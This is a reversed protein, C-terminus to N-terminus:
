TWKQRGGRAGWGEFGRAMQRADRRDTGMPMGMGEGPAGASQCGARRGDVGKIEDVHRSYCSRSLQKQSPPPAQFGPHAPLPLQHAAGQRARPCSAGGPQRSCKASCPPVGAARAGADWGRDSLEGPDTAAGRVPKLKAVSWSHRSERMDARAARGQGALVELLGGPLEHLSISTRAPWRRWKCWGGNRGPERGSRARGGCLQVREAALEGARGGGEADM